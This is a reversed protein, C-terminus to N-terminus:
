VKFEQRAINVWRKNLKTIINRNLTQGGESPFVQRKPLNNSPIGRNHWDMKKDSAFITFGKQTKRIKFSNLMKGSLKLNVPRSQKGLRSYRGSRIAKKYSKSYAKFQGQGAVPSRGIRVDALMLRKTETAVTVLNARLRKITKDANFKINAM